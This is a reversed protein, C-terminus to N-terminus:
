RVEPGELCMLFGLTWPGTGSRSRLVNSRLGKNGVKVKSRGRSRGIRRSATSPTSARPTGPATTDPWNDEDFGPAQKLREKDVNLIFRKNVTDLTLAKFPVM